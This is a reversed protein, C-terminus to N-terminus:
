PIRTPPPSNCTPLQRHQDELQFNRLESAVQVSSNVDYCKLHTAIHGLCKLLWVSLDHGIMDPSAVIPRMPTGDKHIKPCGYIRPILYPEPKLRLHALTTDASAFPKITYILKSCIGEVHTQLTDMNYHTQLEYIGSNINDNIHTYMREMYLPKDMIVIKGGKDAQVAIITPNNHFFKRTMSSLKSLYKQALSTINSDKLRLEEISIGDAFSNISNLDDMTCCSESLISLCFLIDMLTRNCYTLPVSFNRGLSLVVLVYTPIRQRTLTHVADKNYHIHLLELDKLINGNNIWEPHQAMMVSQLGNPGPAYIVADMTGYPHNSTTAFKPAFTTTPSYTPAAMTPSRPLRQSVGSGNPNMFTQSVIDKSPGQKPSTTQLYTKEDMNQLFNSFANTIETFLETRHRAIGLKLESVKSAHSSVHIRVRKLLLNLEDTMPQSIPGTNRILSTFSRILDSRRRSALERTFAMESPLMIRAKEKRLPEGTKQNILKHLDFALGPDIPHIITSKFALDIENVLQRTDSEEIINEIQDAILHLLKSNWLEAMNVVNPDENTATLQMNTAAESLLHYYRLIIDMTLEVDINTFMSVYDFSTLVHQDELQFNRLESAVQVSSNVDYCKLHTAIHGLCKLLWVSLDHGIMDPSAVIPRMPTGNKHIKPCGYIRPILYPEPKLRLHALTTDASAFPKITYILKSFIGEVHTQLTDMNYHTQLEYIGSNINDNIHTYMREMYLPKDMIVIKGGKDAQVAIITPNNHFFKRTMSSPKSLYKQALSTINSDKLRLEEISIGDAFSNISNLDDMTCCSESLISLCFLIDMLTRNCYTLPVSFNRGLSLVVLVYTPIRQRTLIHVADKNYHIHLLELDKLINGNNIWEPHQAMM